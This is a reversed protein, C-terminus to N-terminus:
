RDRNGRRPQYRRSSDVGSVHQRNQSKREQNNLNGRLTQRRNTFQPAASHLRKTNNKQVHDQILIYLIYLPIIPILLAILGIIPLAALILLQAVIPDAKADHLIPILM